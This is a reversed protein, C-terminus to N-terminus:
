WYYFSCPMHSAREALLICQFTFPNDEHLIGPIFMLNNEEYFKRRLLYSWALVRYDINKRMEVFLDKGTYVNEYTYTRNCEKNKYKNRDDALIQWDFFLIDLFIFLGKSKSSTKM